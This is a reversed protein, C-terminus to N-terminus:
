AGPYAPSPCHPIAPATLHAYTSIMVDATLKTYNLRLTYSIQPYYADTGTTLDTVYAFFNSISQEVVLDNSDSSTCSTLMSFAMAVGAFLSLLKKM